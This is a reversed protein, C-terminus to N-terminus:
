LRVHLICACMGSSCLLSSDMTVVNSSVTVPYAKTSYKHLIQPALYNFLYYGTNM